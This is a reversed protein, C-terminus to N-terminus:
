TIVNIKLRIIAVASNKCHKITGLMVENFENATRGRFIDKKEFTINEKNREAM